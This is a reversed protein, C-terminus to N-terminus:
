DIQTPPHAALSSCPQIAPHSSPSPIHRWPRSSDPFPLETSPSCLVPCQVPLEWYLVSRISIMSIMYSRSVPGRWQLRLWSVNGALSRMNSDSLPCGIHPYTYGAAQEPEMPVAMISLQESGLLYREEFSHHCGRLVWCKGNRLLAPAYVGHMPLRAPNQSLNALVAEGQSNAAVTKPLKRYSEM